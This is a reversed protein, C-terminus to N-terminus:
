FAILNYIECLKEPIGRFLESREGAEARIDAFADPDSLDLDGNSFQVLRAHHFGEVAAVPIKSLIRAISGTM